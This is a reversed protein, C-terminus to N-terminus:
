EGSIEFLTVEGYSSIGTIYLPVEAKNAYDMYARFTKDSHIGNKSFMGIRWKLYEEREPTKVDSFRSVHTDTIHLFTYREKLGKIQIKKRIVNINEM